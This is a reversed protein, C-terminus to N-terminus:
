RDTFNLDNNAHSSEFVCSIEKVSWSYALKHSMWRRSATLGHLGVWCIYALKRMEDYIAHHARACRTMCHWYVYSNNQTWVCMYMGCINTIMSCHNLCTVIAQLPFVYTRMIGEIVGRFRSMRLSRGHRTLCQGVSQIYVCAACKGLSHEGSTGDTAAQSGLRM